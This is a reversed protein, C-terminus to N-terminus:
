MRSPIALSRSSLAVTFHNADDRLPYPSVMPRKERLDAEVRPSGEGANGCPLEGDLGSTPSSGQLAGPHEFVVPTAQEYM